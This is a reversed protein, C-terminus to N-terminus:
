ISEDVVRITVTQEKSNTELFVFHKFDGMDFKHQAIGTKKNEFMAPAQVMVTKSSAQGMSTAPNKASFESDFMGFYQGYYTAADKMAGVNSFRLIVGIENITPFQEKNRIYFRPEESPPVWKQPSPLVQGWVISPFGKSKKPYNITPPTLKGGVLVGFFKCGSQPNYDKPKIYTMAVQSTNKDGFKFGISGSFFDGSDQELLPNAGLRPPMPKDAAYGSMTLWICCAIAILRKM